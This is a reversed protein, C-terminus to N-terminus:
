RSDSLNKTKNEKKKKDEKTYAIIEKLNREFTLPQNAMYLIESLFLPM